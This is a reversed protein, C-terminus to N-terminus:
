FGRPVETPAVGVDAALAGLLTADGRPISVGVRENRQRARHEPEGPLLGAGADTAAGLSVEPGVITERIYRGITRARDAILSRPAFTTPDILVFLAHNGFVIEDMGSISGGTMVAAFVENLVALAYGKHGATAGGLPRLAGAGDTEFADADRLDGGGARVVWDAPLAEGTVTREKIKGHAVQSTSLDAILPFALGDFTPMGLCIPNTSFRRQASGPPAVYASAPNAVLGIFACGAAAAQEAFAGVRGIHATNAISVLAVGEDTAMEIGADTAAAGVLHGFAREGDVQVAHASRTTMTPEATPDIVGADIEAAYRSHLQRVGHSTHGALDAGVLLEAVTAATAPPTAMSGLLATMFATLAGEPVTLHADSM